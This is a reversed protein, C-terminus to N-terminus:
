HTLTSAPTVAGINFVLDYRKNVRSKTVKKLGFNYFEGSEPDLNISFIKESKGLWYALPFIKIRQFDIMKISAHVNGCVVISKKKSDHWGLIERAMIRERDNQDPINKTDIFFISKTLTGAFKILELMETSNRGDDIGQDTFFDIQGGEHIFLDLQEQYEKPIELFLSFPMKILLLFEQIILPIEKTGHIEGFLIIDNNTVKSKIALHLKKAIDIPAMNYFTM